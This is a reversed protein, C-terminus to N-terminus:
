REVVPEVRNTAASDGGEIGFPSGPVMQDELRFAGLCGGQGARASLSPACPESRSLHAGATAAPRPARRASRASWMAGGQNIEVV